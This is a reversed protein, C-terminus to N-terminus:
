SVSNEEHYGNNAYSDMADSDNMIHELSPIYEIGSASIHFWNPKLLYKIYENIDIVM